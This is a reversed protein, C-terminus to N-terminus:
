LNLQRRIEAVEEPLLHTQAAVHGDAVGRKLMEGAASWRGREEKEFQRVKQTAEPAFILGVDNRMERMDSRHALVRERDSALGLDMAPMVTEGLAVSRAINPRIPSVPRVPRVPQLALASAQRLSVADRRDVIALLDHALQRIRGEQSHASASFVGKSELHERIAKKV